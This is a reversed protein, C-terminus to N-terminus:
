RANQKRLRKTSIENEIAKKSMIELYEDLTVM